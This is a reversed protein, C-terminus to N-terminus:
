LPRRGNSLRTAFSRSKAGILLIIIRLAKKNATAEEESLLQQHSRVSGLRLVHSVLWLVV